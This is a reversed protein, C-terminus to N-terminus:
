VDSEEFEGAASRNSGSTIKYGAEEVRAQLRTENVITPDYQIVVTHSNTDVEVDRVGEVDAVESELRDRDSDKKIDNSQIRFVGIPGINM